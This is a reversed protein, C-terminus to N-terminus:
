IGEIAGYSCIHMRSATYPKAQTPADVQGGMKSAAQGV